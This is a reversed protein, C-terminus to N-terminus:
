VIELNIGCEIAGEHLAKFLSMYADKNAMYKGFVGIKLKPKQKIIENYSKFEDYM